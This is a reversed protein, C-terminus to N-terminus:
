RIAKTPGNGVRTNGLDARNAAEHGSQYGDANYSKNSARAKKSPQRSFFDDVAQGRDRLAPLFDSGSEKEVEVRTLRIQERLRYGIRRAYAMRFAVRWKGIETAGMEKYEEPLGRRAETVCQIMMSAVMVKVREIDSQWGVLLVGAGTGWDKQTRRLVRVGNAESVQIWLESMSNFYGSRKLVVAERSIKDASTGKRAAWVRAEEIGKRQMIDQAKSFFAEAEEPTSAREAKALLAAVKATWKENDANPTANM